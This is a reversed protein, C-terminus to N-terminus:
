ARMISDVLPEIYNAYKRLSDVGRPEQELLPVEVTPLDRFTERIKKLCHEQERLKSGLEPITSRIKLIKNIVCGRVAINLSKLKEFARVAELLPLTEPALVLLCMTDRSTLCSILKECEDLMHNLERMVPDESEDYPVDGLDEGINKLMRRRDLIARRLKVLETLWSRHVFPLSLIRLSLGTPPMDFIIFDKDDNEEIIRKFENMLAHEEVGPANSLTDIYKDINLVSLHKFASRISLAVDDLYKKVIEDVDVEVIELSTSVRVKKGSSRVNFVDLLNHAPDLSVILVSFGRDHLLVGLSAATTTKGVGGKGITIITKM